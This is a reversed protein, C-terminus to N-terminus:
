PLDESQTQRNPRDTGTNADLGKMKSGENPPMFEIIATRQEEKDAQKRLSEMARKYIKKVADETKGREAAIEKFSMGKFIRHAIVERKEDPLSDFRQELDVLTPVSPARDTAEVLPKGEEDVVMPRERLIHRVRRQKCNTLHSRWMQLIYAHATGRQPDFQPHFKPFGEDMIKICFDQFADEADQWQRLRLCGITLYAKRREKTLWLAVRKREDTSWMNGRKSFISEIDVWDDHSM